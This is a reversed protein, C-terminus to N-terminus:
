LTLSAQIYTISDTRKLKPNEEFAKKDYTNFERRHGAKVGFAGAIKAYLYLDQITRYNSKDNMAPIYYIYYRISYDDNFPLLEIRGRVSWRWEKEAPHEEYKEYQRIPAGSLDILLYNNRIFYFKAGAGSGNRHKLLTIKNYDSMTYSFFEIRWFLFYDFNATATGRNDNVIDNLKGYSGSFNLKLVTHDDDYKIFSSYTTNTSDTNGSKTTYGGSLNLFIKKEDDGKKVPEVYSFIDSFKFIKVESESTEAATPTM